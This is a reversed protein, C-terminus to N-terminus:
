EGIACIGIIGEYLTSKDLLHQVSICEGHQVIKDIEEEIDYSYPTLPMFDFIAAHNHTIINSGNDSIHFLSQLFRESFNGMKTRDLGLGVACITKNKHELDISFRLWEKLNNKALINKGNQPANELIPSKKLSAGLLGSTESCVVIAILGKYNELRECIDFLNKYIDSFSLGKEKSKAKFRVVLNFDDRFAASFLMSIKVDLSSHSTILFDPVDNGDTPLYFVNHNLVLMEGFTNKVEEYTDGLSGIGIAYQLETLSKQILDTESYQANQLRAISGDVSLTSPEPTAEPLWYTVNRLEIVERIEIPSEAEKEEYFQSEANSVSDFIRFLQDFSSIEFIKKIFAKLGSLVVIGGVLQLQNKLTLFTSLGASSIYTLHELDIIFNYYGAKVEKDLAQDVFDAWYADLRGDLGIVLIDKRIERTIEV